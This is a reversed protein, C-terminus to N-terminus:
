KRIYTTKEKNKKRKELERDEIKLELYYRDGFFKLVYSGFEEHLSMLKKLELFLCM